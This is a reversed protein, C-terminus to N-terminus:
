VFVWLLSADDNDTIAMVKGDGSLAPFGQRVNLPAGTGVIAPGNQTWTGTTEGQRGIQTYIWSAGTGNNNVYSSVVLTNSLIQMTRCIAGATSLIALVASWISQYQVIDGTQRIDGAFYGTVTKSGCSRRTTVSYVALDRAVNGFSM